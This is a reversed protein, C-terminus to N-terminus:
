VMPKRELKRKFNRGTSKLAFIFYRMLDFIEPTGINRVVNCGNEPNRV